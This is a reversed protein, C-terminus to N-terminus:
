NLKRTLWKRIPILPHILSTKVILKLSFGNASHTMNLQAKIREARMRMNNLGSGTKTTLSLLQSSNYAEFVLTSGSPYASLWAERGDGHKLINHICEKLIFFVEQKQLPSLEYQYLNPDFNLVIYAASQENSQQVLETLKDFLNGLSHYQKDNSWVVDRMNSMAMRCTTVIEAMVNKYELEVEEELIEAQMAVRTLVSGVDDHLNRSIQSRLKAMEEVRKFRLYIIWTALTLITMVFLTIFWAKKYFVETVRIRLTAPVVEDSKPSMGRIRLIYDGPSLSAFRLYNKEGIPIWEKNLGELQYFFKNKEPYTFDSNFFNVALYSSRYSLDVGRMMESNQNVKVVKSQDDLLELASIIIRNPYVIKQQTQIASNCWNIGNIGGFVLEGERTYLASTANFENDTIGNEKYYSLVDYNTDVVSIGTYTAIWLKGLLDKIVSAIRDGALGDVMGLNKYVEGKANVLSVGGGDTAICLNHETDEFIYNITASKIRHALFADPAYRRIVMHHNNLVFLGQNTCVFFEEKENRYIYRVYPRKYEKGGFRLKQEEFRNLKPYYWVLEDYGGLLLNGQKDAAGSILFNYKHEDKAVRKVKGSEKQMLHLGYGESIMWCTKADIDIFANPAYLKQNNLLQRVKRQADIKFLGGYGGVYIDGKQDQMMGRFSPVFDPDGASEKTLMGSFVSQEAIMKFLGNNTSIWYENALGKVIIGISINEHKSFFNSTVDTAVNNQVRYLKTRNVATVWYSGNNDDFVRFVDSIHGIDYPEFDDIVPNYRKVGDVMMCVLGIKPLETLQAENYSLQDVLYHKIVEGTKSNLKYVGRNQTKVWLYGKFNTMKIRKGFSKDTQHAPYHHTFGGQNNYKNLVGDECAVWLSKDDAQHIQLVYPHSLSTAQKDSVFKRIVKNTHLQLVYIGNDTGAWLYGRPAEILHTFFASGLQPTNQPSFTVFEYGDFRNLGNNTSVWLYGDSTRTAYNVFRNSLGDKETWHQIHQAHLLMGCLMAMILSTVPKFM